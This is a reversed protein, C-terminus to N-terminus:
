HKMIGFAFICLIGIVIASCPNVYSEFKELLKGNKDYIKADSTWQEKTLNIPEGKATVAQVMKQQYYLGDIKKASDPDSIWSEGTVPDEKKGSLDGVQLLPSLTCQPYGAGTLATVLPIPNLANKADEVMGPALGRLAPLGMSSMANKVTEGFVDGQPIGKMYYWMDAGNSCQIGTKVFYNVGLPKLGMDKSLGTSPEGFGIQDTYFAVGKIGQVVDDMSNGIKIGIDAPTLMSDAPSYPSGFFGIDNPATM